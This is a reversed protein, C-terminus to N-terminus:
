QKYLYSALVAMIALPVSVTLSGAGNCGEKDCVTCSKIQKSPDTTMMKTNDLLRCSESLNSPNADLCTRVTAGNQMVLKHCYRPAGAVGDALERPLIDRLYVRNYNISDQSVCDVLKDKASFPDKCTPDSQSNCQYCKLCSGIEFLALLTAITLATVTRAM